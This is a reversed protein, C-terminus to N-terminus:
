DLMCATACCPFGYVCCFSLSCSPLLYECVILSVLAKNGFYVFLEYLKVVVVFLGIWFHVRITQSNYLGPCHPPSLFPPTSLSFQLVVRHSPVVGTVVEHCASFPSAPLKAPMNTWCMPSRWFSQSLSSARQPLGHFVSLLCVQHQGQHIGFSFAKAVRWRNNHRIFM